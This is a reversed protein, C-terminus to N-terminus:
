LSSIRSVRGHTHFRLSLTLLVREQILRFGQWCVQKVRKPDWQGAGHPIALGRLRFRSTTSRRLRARMCLEFSGIPM